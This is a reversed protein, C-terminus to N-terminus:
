YSLNKEESVSPWHTIGLGKLTKIKKKGVPALGIEKLLLKKDRRAAIM